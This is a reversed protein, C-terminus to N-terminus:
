SLAHFEELVARAEETGPVAADWRVQGAEVAVEFGFFPCCAEERAASKDCAVPTSASPLQM